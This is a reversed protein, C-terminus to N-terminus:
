VGAVAVPVSHAGGLIARAQAVRPLVAHRSRVATHVVAARLPAVPLPPPVLRAHHVRTRLNPAPSPPIAPRLTHKALPVLALARRAHKPPPPPIQAGFMNTRPPTALSLRLPIPITLLM